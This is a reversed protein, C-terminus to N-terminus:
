PSSDSNFPLSIESAPRNTRGERKPLLRPSKRKTRHHPRPTAIRRANASIRNFTISRISLTLFAKASSTGAPDTLIYKANGTQKEDGTVDSAAHKVAILVKRMTGLSKEDKLLQEWRELVEVSLGGEVAEAEEEPDEEEEIGLEEPDFELLERDNAKLFQYFSPDKEKLGELAEMHTKEMEDIEMTEEEGVGGTELFEDMSMGDFLSGRGERVVKKEAVGRSVIEKAAARRPDNRVKNKSPKDRHGKRIKAGEITQQTPHKKLFKKTQKSAKGQAMTSSPAPAPTSLTESFVFQHIPPPSFKLSAQATRLEWRNRGWMSVVDSHAAVDSSGM